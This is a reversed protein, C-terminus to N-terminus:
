SQALERFWYRPPPWVLRPVVPREWRAVWRLAWQPAWAQTKPIVVPLSTATGKTEHGAALLAMRRENIGTERLRRVAELAYNYNDFVRAIVEM